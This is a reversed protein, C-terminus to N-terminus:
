ERDGRATERQRETETQRDTLRDTETQRDRDTQRETETVTETESYLICFVSINNDIFNAKRSCLLYWYSLVRYLVYYM